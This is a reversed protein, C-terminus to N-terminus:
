GQNVQVHEYVTALAFSANMSNLAVTQGIGYLRYRWTNGERTYVEIAQRQTNVLVYEQLSALQQYYAFKKGRDYAETSPSLVEVILRPSHITDNDGQNDAPDCSVTVDPYLYRAENVRVRVDSTHVQCSSDALLRDLLIATNLAIRAHAITGGALAQPDRLNYAIGDVYEYKADPSNRDLELYEEVSMHYRHPDAAM